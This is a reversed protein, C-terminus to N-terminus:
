RRRQVRQRAETELAELFKRVQERRAQALASSATGVLDWRDRARMRKEARPLGSVEASTATAVAGMTTRRVVEVFEMLPAGLAEALGLLPHVGVQDPPTKGTELGELVKTHIGLRGALVAVAIGLAERKTRLYRGLSWDAPVAIKRAEREMQARAMTAQVQKRFNAPLETEGSLQELAEATADNLIAEQGAAALLAELRQDFTLEKASAPHEGEERAAERGMRALEERWNSMMVM